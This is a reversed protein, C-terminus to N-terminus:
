EGMPTKLPFTRILLWFKFNATRPLLSMGVIWRRLGKTCAAALVTSTNQAQASLM